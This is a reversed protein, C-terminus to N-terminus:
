LYDRDKSPTKSYQLTAIYILMVISWLELVGNKKIRNIRDSNIDKDYYCWKGYRIFNGPLFAIFILIAPWIQHMLISSMIDLQNLHM